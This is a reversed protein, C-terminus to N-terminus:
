LSRSMTAPGSPFTCDSSRNRFSGDVNVNSFPQANGLRIYKLPSLQTMGGGSAYGHSGLEEGTSRSFLEDRTRGMAIQIAISNKRSRIYHSDVSQSINLCSNISVLSQWMPRNVSSVDLMRFKKYDLPYPHNQHASESTFSHDLLSATSENANQTNYIQLNTLASTDTILIGWSLDQAHKTWFLM